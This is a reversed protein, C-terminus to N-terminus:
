FNVSSKGKPIPLRTLFSRPDFLMRSVQVISRVQGVGSWGRSRGLGGISRGLGGISRGLGGDGASGRRGFTGLRASSRRCNSLWHVGGVKVRIDVSLVQIERGEEM